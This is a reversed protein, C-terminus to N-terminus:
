DIVTKCKNEKEIKLKKIEDFLNWKYITWTYGLEAHLEAITASGGGGVGLTRSLYTGRDHPIFGIEVTAEIPVGISGGTQMGWQELAKYNPANSITISKSYSLHPFGGGGSPTIQAAINGESDLVTSFALSGSPGAGFAGATNYSITGIGCNEYIFELGSSSSGVFGDIASNWGNVAGEGIAIVAGDISEQVEGTWQDWADQLGQLYQNVAWQNADAQSIGSGRPYLGNRDVLNVPNGWCYLYANQTIPAQLSGRVQDQGLFRGTGSDYERAQAYDTNSITDHQYGTYGFPQSTSEYPYLDQGFEDYGYREQSKGESNLLRIPSGLDDQLYFQSSEEQVRSLLQHDWLYSEEQDGEYRQLLHPYQKTLDLVDEIERTPNLNLSAIMEENPKGEVPKGEVKGIRNGLGNYQYEAGMGSQYNMARELRNFSGFHYQNLLQGNRYRKTLNGRKDYQYTEEATQIGTTPGPNLPLEEKRVLQNLRNYHYVTRKKDETQGTRNGYEDYVYSRILYGDKSVRHLRNLADYQYQYNGSERKLGSRQKVIGVKNGMADYTYQYEDLKENRNWHTLRNPQGTEDYGYTTKIGNEFVKETLYGRKDYQYNVRTDPGQVETLHFGDDYDYRVTKGDPYTISRRENLRGYEYSVERDKHDTVKRTRGLDDYEMRTIGLWDEVQILQRLPNYCFRVERGDGYRIKNIEGTGEYGYSTQYGDPDTKGTLKGAPDYHYTEINGLPDIIQEIQGALNRQYTTIRINQNEKNIKLVEELDFTQNEDTFLHKEGQIIHTLKGIGDYGYATQNGAADLVGILHSCPDYLYRTKRGNADTKETLNGVADYTYQSEQGQNSRIKIIRDFCDYAYEFIGGKQDSKRILNQNGDYCYQVVRGDLYSEETLLGLSDYQYRVLVVGEKRVEILKSLANYAFCTEEGLANIEKVKQGAPDYEYSTVQGLPNVCKTIQGEANYEYCHVAVKGQGNPEKKEIVRNLADYTFETVEGHVGIIKTRNGNPDYAYTVTGGLPNTVCELQNAQNYRYTKIGGNAEKVQCLNWMQDYELITENGMADIVKSPKNLLEYELNTTSGNYDTFSTVRNSANYTYRRQKGEANTVCILNNRNDYEFQLTTGNADTTESVRNLADYQYRVSYGKPDILKRLNGRQDYEFRYCSGENRRDQTLPVKREPQFFETPLGQHNYTFECSRGIGDTTKMLNGKRDYQNKLKLVGNVSLTLLQNQQNYTKHIQHHLADVKRTENGQRDYEYRTLYGRKDKYRIKKNQEQYVFEEKGDQDITKINRYREDYYHTVRNGNQETMEVMKEEDHYVYSVEGGDPFQQKTTRGDQDYENRVSQVGRANTIAQIKNNQGYHYQIVNGDPDFVKELGGMGGFGPSHSKGGMGGFGPSPSKGSGGFEFQIERGTHDRVAALKGDEQYCFALSTGSGEVQILQGEQNYHFDIGNGNADERRLERGQQDFLHKRQDKATYLYSREMGCRGGFGPSPSKGSKVLCITEIGTHANRYVTESEKRYQEEKGDALFLILKDRKIELRMEYSHIWGEGLSGHRTDLANYFRKFVLPMVGAIRLDEHEYIFNGTNLNVPDKSYAYCLGMGKLYGLEEPNDQWRRFLLAMGQAQRADVKQGNDTAYIIGFGKTCFMYSKDKLLSFDGTSTVKTEDYDQWENREIEPKCVHDGAMCAHFLPSFEIDKHGLEVSRQLFLCSAGKVMRSESQCGAACTCIVKAGAAITSDMMKESAAIGAIIEAITFIGPAGKKGGM